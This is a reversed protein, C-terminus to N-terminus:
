IKTQNQTNSILYAERQEGFFAGLSLFSFNIPLQAFLGLPLDEGFDQWFEEM